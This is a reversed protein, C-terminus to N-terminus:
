GSSRGARNPNGAALTAVKKYASPLIDFASFPRRGAATAFSTEANKM